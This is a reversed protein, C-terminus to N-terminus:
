GVQDSDVRSAAARKKPAPPPSSRGPRLPEHGLGPPQERQGRQRVLQEDRQEGALADPVADLDHARGLAGLLLDGPQQGVDVEDDAVPRRGQAQEPGPGRAQKTCCGLTPVSPMSRSAKAAAPTGTAFQAPALVVLTASHHRCATSDSSRLVTSASAATRRPSHGCVLRPPRSSAPVRTPTTPM